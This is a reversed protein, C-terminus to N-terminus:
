PRSRDRVHVGEAIDDAAHDLALEAEQLAPIVEPAWRHQQQRYEEARQRLHAVAYSRELAQGKEFRLVFRGYLAPLSRWLLWGLFATVVLLWHAGWFAALKHPEDWWQGTRFALYGVLIALPLQRAIM